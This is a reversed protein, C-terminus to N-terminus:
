RFEYDQKWLKFRSDPDAHIATAARYVTLFKPTLDRVTISERPVDAATLAFM